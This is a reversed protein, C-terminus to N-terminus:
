QKSAPPFPNVLDSSRVWGTTVRGFNEVNTHPNVFRVLSFQDRIQLIIVANWKALYGKRAVYTGNQYDFFNTKRKALAIGIAPIEQQVYYSVSRFDNPDFTFTGM